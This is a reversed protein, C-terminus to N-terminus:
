GEIEENQWGTMKTKLVWKSTIPVRSRSLDVLEWTGNRQVELEENMSSDVRPTRMTEEGMKPDNLDVM